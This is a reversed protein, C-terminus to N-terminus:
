PVRAEIMAPLGENGRADVATVRYRFLLKTTLGSDLLERATLPEPTILRFEAGPDQRYVRYGAVDPAQSPEWLLRVSGEGPLASLKDPPPPAFRDEYVLEREGAPASEVVPTKSALACVTYIYRQGYRASTDVFRSEGAEAAKLPAGYSPREAERRYVHYGVAGAVAGWAVEVGEARATLALPAPAAPPMTPALAAVNSLDSWGGREARTRVAWFRAEPPSPLAEGLRFRVTIRDGSVAGKLEAGTLELIPKAAVAFERGDIALPAVPTTPAPTTPAPTTPAPTTPAPTAPAPTVPAAAAPPPVAPATAPTAAGAATTTAPPAPKAAQLVELSALEPLVMGAATTKPYGMELVVELGRQRVALDAIRAPVTRPPPLPDGKKGCAAFPAVAVLALLLRAACARRRATESSM